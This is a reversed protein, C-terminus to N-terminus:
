DPTAFLLHDVTKRAAGMPSDGTPNEYRILRIWDSVIKKKEENQSNAIFARYHEIAKEMKHLYEDYLIGLNYHSPADKPNIKLAREYMDAAKKYLGAQTYAVGLNYYYIVKETNRRPVGPASVPKAQSATSVSKVLAIPEQPPEEPRSVIKLAEPKPESATDAPEKEIEKSTESKKTEAKQSAAMENVKADLSQLQKEFSMTDDKLENARAQISSAEMVVSNEAPSPAPSVTVPPPVSEEKRPPENSSAAPKPTVPAPAAPAPREATKAAASKEKELTVSLAAEKAEKEKLEKLTEELKKELVEVKKQYSKEKIEAESIEPTETQSLKKGAQSSDGYINENAPETAPASLNKKEEQLEQKKKTLQKLVDMQRQLQSQLGSIQKDKDEIVKLSDANKQTLQFMEEDMQRNKEFTSHLISKTSRLEKEAAKPSFVDKVTVAILGAAGIASIAVSLQIGIRRWNM